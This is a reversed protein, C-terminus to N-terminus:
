CRPTLIILQEDVVKGGRIETYEMLPFIPGGEIEPESGCHTYLRVDARFIRGILFTTKSM